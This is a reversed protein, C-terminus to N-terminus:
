DKQLFKLVEETFEQPCDTHITHTSNKINVFKANPFLEKNIPINKGIEFQSFEAYIFLTPKEYIGKPETMLSETNKLAKMMSVANIKYQFQGDPARKLSFRTHEPRRIDKPLTMWTSRDGYVM